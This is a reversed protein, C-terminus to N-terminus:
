NLSGARMTTVLGKDSDPLLHAMGHGILYDRFLQAINKGKQVEVPTFSKTKKVDATNDGQLVPVGNADFTKTSASLFLDSGNSAPMYSTVSEQQFTDLIVNDIHQVRIVKALSRVLVRSPDSCDFTKSTVLHHEDFESLKTRSSYPMGVYHWIGGEKDQQMGYVFTRRAKFRHPDTLTEDTKFNRRLVATEYDVSWTGCMWSPLKIWENSQDDCKVTSLSFVKGPRLEEDLAPLADVHNIGGFLTQSTVSSSSTGTLAMALLAVLCWEQRRMQM